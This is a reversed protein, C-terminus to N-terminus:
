GPAIVGASSGPIAIRCGPRGGFAVAAPVTRLHQYIDWAGRSRGPTKVQFLYM